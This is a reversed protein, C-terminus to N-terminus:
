ERLSGRLALASIRALDPPSSAPTRRRYVRLGDPHPRGFRQLPYSGSLTWEPSSAVAADVRAHYGRTEAAVTTTDVVVTSVPIADLLALVEPASRYREEAGRGLWDEVVFLKSGRLVVKSPRPELSALSAIWAGEGQSDSLVIQAEPGRTAAADVVAAGRAYGESYPARARLGAVVIPALAVLVLALRAAWVTAPTALRRAVSDIALAAFLVLAPIGALVYRAEIGAPVAVHLVLKALVLAALCAWAPEISSTRDRPALAIWAGAVALLTLGAGLTGAIAAPFAVLASTVFAVGGVTFAGEGARISETALYWPACGALVVGASSWMRPSRLRDLRRALVLALPPVLGLAWSSGSTLIAASAFLGFWLWDRLRDDRIGRAFQLAAILMFVTATHEYVVQGTSERVLPLALLVTGAFWGAWPGVLTRGALFTILAMAAAVVAMFFLAAIRSTGAALMWVGLMAYLGPPWHGIAVKPYHVYYDSAFTFPTGWAGSALYERVMVATVFHAAEDSSRSSFDAVVAGSAYQLTLAELLFALFAAALVGRSPWSTSVPSPPPM